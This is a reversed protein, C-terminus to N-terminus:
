HAFGENPLGNAGLVRQPMLHLMKPAYLALSFSEVPWTHSIAAHYLENAPM